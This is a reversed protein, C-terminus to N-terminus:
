QASQRLTQAVRNRTMAPRPSRTTPLDSRARDVRPGRGGAVALGPQRRRGADGPGTDSGRGGSGSAGVGGHCGARYLSDQQGALQTLQAIMNTGLALDFRADFDGEKAQHLAVSLVNDGQQLVKPELVFLVEEQGDDYTSEASAPTDHAASAPLNLRAVEQGNLYVAAGDDCRLALVLDQVGALDSVSFRHRYYTAHPNEAGAPDAKLVTAENFQGYGLPAPGSRGRPMTVAPRLGTAPPAAADDWYRWPASVEGSRTHGPFLARGAPLRDHQQADEGRTGPIRSHSRASRDFLGDPHVSDAVEGHHTGVSRGRDFAVDRDQGGRGPQLPRAYRWQCGPDHVAPGRYKELLKREVPYMERCYPCWDAWFDVLVVQGQLAALSLPTGDHTRAKWPSPFAGSRSTSSKCCTRRPCSGCRRPAWCCTASNTPRASWHRIMEGRQRPTPQPVRLLNMGLALSAYARADLHESKEIIDRQFQLADDTPVALLMLATNGLNPDQFHDERLRELTKRVPDKTGEVDYRAVQCACTLAEFASRQGRHKEALDLLKKMFAGTPNKPKFLSGFLGTSPEQAQAAFEAARGPIAADALAGRSGHLCPCRLVRSRCRNRSEIKKSLDLLHAVHTAFGINQGAAIWTNIGVLEGKSNLLPGGSSGHSIAANTQIWLNDKPAGLASQYEAPLEETRRVASVIGTTATFRFGEPHGMAVLLEGIQLEGPPDAFHVGGARSAPDRLQLIM